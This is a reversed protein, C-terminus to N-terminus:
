DPEEGEEDGVAGQSVGVQAARVVRDGVRYGPRMVTSVHGAPITAHPQGLFAEHQRPDFPTGLADIRELGAQQMAGALKGTILLVGQVWPQERLEPPVDGAARELDDLIPLFPVLADARAAAALAVRETEIRRRYNIFDARERQLLSRFEEAERRAEAGPDDDAAVADQETDIDTATQAAGDPWAADNREGNTQEAM